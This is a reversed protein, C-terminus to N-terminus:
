EAWPGRAWGPRNATPLQPWAVHSLVCHRNKVMYSSPIKLLIFPPTSVIIDGTLHSEQHLSTVPIYFRSLGVWHQSARAHVTSKAQFKFDEKKRYRKKNGAEEGASRTRRQTDTWGDSTLFFKRSTKSYLNRGSQDWLVRHRKRNCDKAM